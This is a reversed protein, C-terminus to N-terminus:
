ALTKKRKKILQQIKQRRFSLLILLLAWYILPQLVDSKVSWIYHLAVLIAALYVLNHLSQWIRGLKRQAWSTSTLALIMLIVFASFGVTIYPRKIIESIILQWALQLEFFIYSLFHAMAYVFAYLGLLRRVRMLPAIKFRKALPAVLLSILLLNFASIGTFHLIEKVPDGGLQDIAGQYFVWILPLLATLHIFVKLGFIHKNTLRLKM